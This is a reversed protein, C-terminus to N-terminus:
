PHSVRLLLGGTICNGQQSYLNFYVRLTRCLCLGPIYNKIRAESSAGLVTQRFLDNFAKKVRGYRYFVQINESRKKLILEMKEAFHIPLTKILLNRYESKSISRYSLPFDLETDNTGTGVKYSFIKNGAFSSGDLTSLAIGQDNYLDFLPQQNVSPHNHV